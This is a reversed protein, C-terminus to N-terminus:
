CLEELHPSYLECPTTAGATCPCTTLALSAVTATQAGSPSSAQTSASIAPLSMQALLNGPAAM